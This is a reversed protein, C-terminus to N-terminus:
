RQTFRSLQLSGLGMRTCFLTLYSQEVIALGMAVELSDM